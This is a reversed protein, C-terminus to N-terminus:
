RARSASRSRHVRSASALRRARRAVALLATAAVVTSLALGGSGPAVACGGGAEEGESCVSENWHPDQMSLVGLCNSAVLAESADASSLPKEDGGQGSCQINGAGDVTFVTGLLEADATVLLSGEVTVETYVQIEDGVEHSAADGHVADIRATAQSADIRAVVTAELATPSASGCLCDGHKIFCYEPQVRAAEAASLGAADLWVVLAADAALERVRAHNSEAAVRQVLDGHGDREILHAMACRAGAADVFYPVLAGPFDRNSPFRGARTYRDLADLHRVRALSQAPCLHSTDRRRLERLASSLHARV